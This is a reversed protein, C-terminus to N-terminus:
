MMMLLMPRKVIRHRPDKQVTFAGALNRQRQSKSLGAQTPGAKPRTLAEPVFIGPQNQQCLLRTMEVSQNFRRHRYQKAHPPTPVILQDAEPMAINLVQPKAVLSQLIDTM